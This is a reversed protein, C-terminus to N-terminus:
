YGGSGELFVKGTYPVDRGSLGLAQKM